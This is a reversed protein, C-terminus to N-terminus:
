RPSSRRSTSRLRTGVSLRSDPLEAFESVLRICDDAFAKGETSGVGPRVEGRGRNAAARARSAGDHRRLALLEHPAALGLSRDRRTSAERSADILEDETELGCFVIMAEGVRADDAKWRVKPAGEVGLHLGFMSREEWEWNLCPEGLEKPLAGRRHAAPLDARSEPDLRDRRGRLAPRRRDRGRRRSGGGDRNAHGRLQRARAWRQARLLSLDGVLPSALRGQGAGGELMRCLYLRSSSASRSTSISGGCRPSPSCRWACARPDTFGYEDIMEIFTYESIEALRERAETEGFEVMQDLAPKPLEYTMPVLYQDLMPQFDDWM